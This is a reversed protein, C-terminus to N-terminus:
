LIEFSQHDAFRNVYFMGYANLSTDWTIGRKVRENGFYPLLHVARFITEVHVVALHPKGDDRYEREVLWMGTADDRRGSDDSLAYWQVLAAPFGRGDYTFSFFILLRAVVYGSLPLQTNGGEGTNVLVTDQRPSGGRWAWTAQIQEQRFGRIGCPDSPSFFVSSASKHLSIKTNWIPLSSTYVDSDSAQSDSDSLLQHHLFLRILDPLEPQDVYKAIDLVPRKHDLVQILSTM